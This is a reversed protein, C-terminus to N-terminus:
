PNGILNFQIYSFYHVIYIRNGCKDHPQIFQKFKKVNRLHKEFFHTNNDNIWLREM